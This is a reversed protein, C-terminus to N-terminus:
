ETWSLEQPNGKIVLPIVTHMISCVYQLQSPRLIFCVPKYPSTDDQILVLWYLQSFLLRWAHTMGQIAPPLSILEVPEHRWGWLEMEKKTPMWIFGRHASGAWSVPLLVLGVFLLANKPTFLRIQGNALHCHWLYLLLPSSSFFLCSVRKPSWSIYLQQLQRMEHHHPEPKSMEFPEKLEARMVNKLFLLWGLWHLSVNLSEM